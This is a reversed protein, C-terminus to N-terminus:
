ASPVVPYNIAGVWFGVTTITEISGVISVSLIRAYM